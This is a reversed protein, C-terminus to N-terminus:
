NPLFVIVSLHWLSILSPSVITYRPNSTLHPPLQCRQRSSFHSLTRAMHPPPFAKLASPVAPACAKLYTHPHLQPHGLLLYNFALTVPIPLSRSILSLPLCIGAAGVAM